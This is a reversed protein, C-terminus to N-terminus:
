DGFGPPLQFNGHIEELHRAFQIPTHDELYLGIIQIGVPLGASTFGIPAVTAPLYAVQALSNWSISIDWYNYTQGNVEIMRHFLFTHDHTHATIGAVPCLLVDFNQFYDDWKQRILARTQNMINWERHNGMM